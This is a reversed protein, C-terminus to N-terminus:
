RWGLVRIIGIRESRTTKPYVNNMFVVKGHQFTASMGDEDNTKLEVTIYNM